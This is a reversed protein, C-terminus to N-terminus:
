SSTEPFIVWLIKSLIILTQSSGKPTLFSTLQNIEYKKKMNTGSNQHHNNNNNNNNNKNNKNKNKNKNYISRKM